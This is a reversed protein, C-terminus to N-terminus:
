DTENLFAPHIYLWGPACKGVRVWVKVLKNAKVARELHTQATSKGVGFHSAVEHRTCGATEQSYVYAAVEEWKYV